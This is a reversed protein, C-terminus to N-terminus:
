HPGQTRRSRYQKGRRKKNKRDKTWSKHTEQLAKGNGGEVTNNTGIVLSLSPDSELEGSVSIKSHRRAESTRRKHDHAMNRLYSSLEGQLQKDLMTQISDSDSESPDEPSFNVQHDQLCGGQKLAAGLKVSVDGDTENDPIALCASQESAFSVSTGIGYIPPQNLWTPKPNLHCKARTMFSLVRFDTVPLTANTGVSTITSDFRVFVQM